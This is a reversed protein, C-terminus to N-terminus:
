SSPAVSTWGARYAARLIAAIVADPAAHHPMHGTDPLLTLHANPLLTALPQSHIDPPVIRDDAGHVLEVPLQLGPYRAQMVTVEALLGNVQMANAAMTGHPIALAAGTGRAYGPPPPNPAFLGPMVTELYADTVLATALLAGLARGPRTATLQYWWDLKGLWPLSPASVLVLAVAAQEGTVELGWALAVTGGYSQGLVIPDKIGLQAAAKALHRAQAIPSVGKDGLGTSHGLGPRDFATVRFQPALRRMLPELDRLQGSAGHILVLDPGSGLMLAHVRAGDVPVLVGLPPYRRFIDAERRRIRWVLALGLVVALALVALLILDRAL